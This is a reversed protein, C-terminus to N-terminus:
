KTVIYNCVRQKLIKSIKLMKADKFVIAQALVILNEEEVALKLIQKRLNAMTKFYNTILADSVNIKESVHYRNINKYGITESVKLACALIQKKRDEASLRSRKM